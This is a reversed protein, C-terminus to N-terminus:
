AKKILWKPFTIPFFRKPFNLCIILLKRFGFNQTVHCELEHQSPSIETYVIPLGILETYCSIFHKAKDTRQEPSSATPPWPCTEREVWSFGCSKSWLVFDLLFVPLLFWLFTHHQSPQLRSRVVPHKLVSTLHLFPGSSVAIPWLSIAWVKQTVLGKCYLGDRLFFCQFRCVLTM